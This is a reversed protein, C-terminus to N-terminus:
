NEPPYMDMLKILERTVLAAESPLLEHYVVDYRRMLRSKEGYPDITRLTGGLLRADEKSLMDDFYCCWEFERNKEEDDIAEPNGLLTLSLLFDRKESGRRSVEAYLVAKENDYLYCGNRDRKVSGFRFSDFGESTLVGEAYEMWWRKYSSSEAGSNKIREMQEEDTIYGMAAAVAKLLVDDDSSALYEFLEASGSMFMMGAFSPVNSYASFMADLKAASEASIERKGGDSDDKAMVADLLAAADYEKDDLLYTNESKRELM